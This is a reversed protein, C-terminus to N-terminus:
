QYGSNYQDRELAMIGMCPYFVTLLLLFLATKTHLIVLLVVWNQDAEM